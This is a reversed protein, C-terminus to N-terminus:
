QKYFTAVIKWCVYPVITGSVNKLKYGMHTWAAIIYREPDGTERNYNFFNGFSGNNRPIFVIVEEEPQFLSDGPLRELTYHIRNIRNFVQIQTDSITRIPHESDHYLEENRKAPYGIGDIQQLYVRESM